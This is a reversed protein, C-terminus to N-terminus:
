FHSHNFIKRNKWHYPDFEIGLLMTLLHEWVRARLMCVGPIQISLSVLTPESAKSMPLKKMGKMYSRLSREGSRTWVLVSMPVCWHGTRCLLLALMLSTVCCGCGVACQLLPDGHFDATYSHPLRFSYNQRSAHDKLYPDPAMWGDTADCLRLVSSCLKYSGLQSSSEWRTPRWESWSSIQSGCHLSSIGRASNKRAQTRRWTLFSLSTWTGLSWTFLLHGQASFTLLDANKDLDFYFWSAEYIAFCKKFHGKM